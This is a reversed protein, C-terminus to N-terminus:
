QLFRFASFSGLPRHVIPAGEANWPKFRIELATAAAWDDQSDSLDDFLDQSVRLSVINRYLDSNMETLTLGDLTGFDM